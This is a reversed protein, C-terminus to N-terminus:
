LLLNSTVAFDKTVFVTTIVLTRQVNVIIFTSVLSIHFHLFSKFRITSLFNSYIKGSLDLRYLKDVDIIIDTLYKAGKVGICNDSINQFCFVFLYGLVCM